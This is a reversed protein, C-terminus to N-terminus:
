LSIYLEGTGAGREVKLCEFSDRYTLLVRLRRKLNAKNEHFTQRLDESELIQKIELQEELQWWGM